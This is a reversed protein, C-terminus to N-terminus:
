PALFGRQHGHLRGQRISGTHQCAGTSERLEALVADAPDDHGRQASQKLGTATPGPEGGTRSRKERVRGRHHDFLNDLTFPRM